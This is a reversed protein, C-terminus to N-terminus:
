KSRCATIVPEVEGLRAIRQERGAAVLQYRDEPGAAARLAEKTDAYKPPPGLTKPVCDIAVPVLVEKVVIVPEPPATTACGGLMLCAAYVGGWGERSM